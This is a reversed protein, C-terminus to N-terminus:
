YLAKIDLVGSVMTTLANKIAEPTSLDMANGAQIRGIM